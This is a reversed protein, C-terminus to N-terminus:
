ASSTSATVAGNLSRGEIDVYFHDGVITVAWRARREEGAALAAVLPADITWLTPPPCSRPWRADVLESRLAEAARADDFVVHTRAGSHQSLSKRLREATAGGCEIWTTLRGTADHTWLDAAEPTSLGPGMAIGEEHLLCWALVRLVVHEQTESPHRAVYLTEALDIGRDVHSL